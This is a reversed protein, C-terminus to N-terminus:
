DELEAEDWVPAGSILSGSIKVLTGPQVLGFFASRPILNDNVDRFQNVPSTNLVIGLITISPDAVSDVAGQLFVKTGGQQEIRTALVTNNPGEIGRVRIHAGSTVTVNNFQTASNTTITIGDLGVLTFSSNNGSAVNSELKVNERFSIKTATLVGNAVTGEAEVKAGVRLDTASFDQPLFLTSGTTAVQQSGIKFGGTNVETIFGEVQARVGVPIVGAGEPELEVKSAVLRDTGPAANCTSGMATGKVEVFQGPAPHGGSINSDILATSYDVELANISLSKSTTNVADVRGKVEIAAMALTKIEIFSAHIQEQADPLGSIEVIDGINIAVNNDVITTADWIVTQGLVRLTTIGGAISKACVTGELNDRFEITSATGTNGNFSSSVKVVMGQKLGGHPGSGPNDDLTVSATSDDLHDGNVIISGFGTITGISIGTGGTGGSAVDGGGGGGCSSVTLLISAILVVNRFFTRNMHVEKTDKTTTM